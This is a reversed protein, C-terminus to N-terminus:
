RTPAAFLSVPQGSKGCFGPSVQGAPDIGREFPNVILGDIESGGAATLHLGNHGPGVVDGRIEVGAAQGVL